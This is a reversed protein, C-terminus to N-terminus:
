AHTFQHTMSGNGDHCQAESSTGSPETEMADLEGSHSFVWDAAREINNGQFVIWWFLYLLQIGLHTDLVSVTAQLAKIAQERSFGLSMVM